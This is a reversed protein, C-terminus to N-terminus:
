QLKPKFWGKGIFQELGNFWGAESDSEITLFKQVKEKHVDILM